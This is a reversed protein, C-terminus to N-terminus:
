VAVDYFELRQIIVKVYEGVEFPEGETDITLVNDGIRIVTYGDDEVVEVCGIIHVLNDKISCDFIDADVKIIEGTWKLTDDVELEVEYEENLKPIDGNWFGSLMGYQTRVDVKRDDNIKIIKVKIKVM